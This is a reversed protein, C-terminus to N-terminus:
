GLFNNIVVSAVMGFLLSNTLTFNKLWNMHYKKILVLQGLTILMSVIFTLMKVKGVVLQMPGFVVIIALSFSAMLLAGNEPHKEMVGSIGGQIKKGCILSFILAVLIGVSMTLMITGTLSSDNSQALEALSSYGSSTAIMDAAMLEYNVAGLVSLRFWSWPIGLVPALSFLGIVIALSPAITYITSARIIIKLTGKDMGLEGARRYARVAVIVCIAGIIVLSSIVLIYLPSGNMIDFYGTMM